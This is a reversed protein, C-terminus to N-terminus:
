LYDSLLGCCDKDEIQPEVQSLKGEKFKQGFKSRVTDIEHKTMGKATGYVTMNKHILNLFRISDLNEEAYGFGLIFIREANSMQEAVARQTDGAREGIIRINNSLEELKKLDFGDRYSSGGFWQINDVQGYVHIISFPIAEKLYESQEKISKSGEIEKWFEHFAHLFSEYLFFELSRDYNFTIFAIQNARFLRADQPTKCSSIM